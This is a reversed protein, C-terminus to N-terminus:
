PREGAPLLNIARAVKKARHEADPDCGCDGCKGHGYIGEPYAAERFAHGDEPVQQPSVTMTIDVEPWRCEGSKSAELLDMFWQFGSANNVYMTMEGSPTAEAWKANRDGRSVPKLTVKGGRNNPTLEIASIHFRAQVAGTPVPM